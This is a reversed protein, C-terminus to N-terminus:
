DQVCRVSFGAEKSFNYRRINADNYYLYRNWAYSTDLESSSWWSGYNGIGYFSGNGYRYGGPLASICSENTAGTNPSQWHTTGSEKLKGGAVSVGGLYTTLTSWEADTPVHWGSPALGRSDNVAYWNYLKGYTIGYASNNEYYCWAGTTLAAWTSTDRVEPISDGNRYNEVDLNKTMWIQTGITVETASTLTFDVENSKQTNVTVSLKGTSAGTPVKVVITTSNWSIYTIANAGSFSVLSKGQKSGFGTGTITVTDGIRASAPMIKTISPIISYEVENSRQGRATISLKGTEAEVPVKVIISSESWSTYESANSGNFTVFGTGQPNGFNLGSISVFSGIGTNTPNIKNIQPQNPELVTFDLENSKKGNVTVTLKGSTAGSPVKVKIQSDSWSLYESVNTGNFSVISTGQASGFLLGTIIIEDGIQGVTPTISTIFLIPIYVFCISDIESVVFNNPINAIYISLIHIKSTDIRIEIKDITISKFEVPKSGKNYIRMVCNDSKNNIGINEIDKLNYQKTIGDNLYFKVRPVQSYLSFAFIFMALILLTKKM